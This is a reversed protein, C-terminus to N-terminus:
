SGANAETVTVDATDTAVTTSGQLLTATVTGGPATCGHLTLSATHSTDGQTITVDEQTDTCTSNFGTNSNDTTGSISYSNTPILDSASVTFADSGGETLSGALGELTIATNPVGIRLMLQDGDEWPQQTVSWTLTGATSDVTASSAFLSLGVTGNLEIFDLSQGALSVHTSLTLVVSNSEWKLSTISTSTAGVRFPSPNLVGNFTDAGVGTGITVPDFLAEHLIGKPASVTITWYLRGSVPTYECAAFEGWIARTTVSYTGEPLPRAITFRGEYDDQPNQDDDWYAYGFLAAYEGEVSYRGYQPGHNQKSAWIITGAPQGSAISGETEPRYASGHYAAYKRYYAEDIVASVICYQYTEDSRASMWTVLAKIQDVTLPEEHMRGPAPGGPDFQTAGESGSSGSAGSPNFAPMWARNEQNIAYGSPFGGLYEDYISETFEFVTAAARSTGSTRRAAGELRSLFLIADRSDYQTDRNATPVSIMIEMSGSGKLYELVRFHLEDNTASTLNARIIVDSHYIQEYVSPNAAYTHPLVGYGQTSGSSGHQIPAQSPWGVVTPAFLPPTPTPEVTASPPASEPSM